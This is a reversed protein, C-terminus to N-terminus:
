KYWAQESSTTGADKDTHVDVGFNFAIRGKIHRAEESPEPYYFAARIQKKGNVEIDYYHADGKWPCHTRYDSPILASKDVVSEPFYLRRDVEVTDNSEAIVKNNFVAKAM